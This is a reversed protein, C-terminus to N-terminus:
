SVPLHRQATASLEVFPSNGLAQWFHSIMRFALDEFTHSFVGKRKMNTQSLAMSGPNLPTCWFGLISHAKLRQAEIM